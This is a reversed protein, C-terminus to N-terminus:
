APSKGGAQLQAPPRFFGQKVPYTQTLERAEIVLNSM